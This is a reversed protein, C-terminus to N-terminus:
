QPLVILCHFRKDSSIFFMIGGKSLAFQKLSEFGARPSRTKRENFLTQQQRKQHAFTYNSWQTPTPNTWHPELTSVFIHWLCIHSFHSCPRYHGPLPLKESQLLFGSQLSTSLFTISQSRCTQGSIVTVTNSFALHYKNQLPYFCLTHNLAQTLCDHQSLRTAVMHSHLTGGSRLCALFESM